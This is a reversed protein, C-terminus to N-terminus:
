RPFLGILWLINAIIGISIAGLPGIAMPTIPKSSVQNLLYIGIVWIFGVAPVIADAALMGGVLLGMELVKAMSTRTNDGLERMGPFKDMGAAIFGLLFIEIIMILTGIIFSGVLGFIGMNVLLLAPVHLAKTGTTAYVGSIIATTMVLPIFGLTRGLAVMAAEHYKGEAALALSAPGEAVLLLTTALAAIGGAIGIIVVNKKIKEINKSFVAFASVSSEESKKFGIAAFYVM